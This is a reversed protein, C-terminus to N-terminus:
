ILVMGRSILAVEFAFDNSAQHAGKLAEATDYEAASDPLVVGNQMAFVHNYMNTAAYATPGIDSAPAIGTDLDTAWGPLRLSFRCAGRLSHTLALLGGIGLYAATADDVVQDVGMQALRLGERPEGGQWKANSAGVVLVPLKPDGISDVLSELVSA